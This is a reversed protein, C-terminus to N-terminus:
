LEFSIINITRPDIKIEEPLKMSINDRQGAIMESLDCLMDCCTSTFIKNKLSNTFILFYKTTFVVIQFDHTLFINGILAM